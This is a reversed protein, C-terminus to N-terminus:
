ADEADDPDDPAPVLPGVFAHRDNEPQLTAHKPTRWYGLRVLVYELPHMDDPRWRALRASVLLVVLLSPIPVLKPGLLPPPLLLFAGLAVVVLGSGLVILTLLQDITLGWRLRNPADLQTPVEYVHVQGASARRRRRRTRPAAPGTARESALAAV